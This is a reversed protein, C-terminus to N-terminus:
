GTQLGGERSVWVGGGEGERGVHVCKNGEIEKSETTVEKM